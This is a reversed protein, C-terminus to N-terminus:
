AVEQGHRACRPDRIENGCSCFPRSRLAQTTLGKEDAMEQITAPRDRKPDSAWNWGCARCRFHQVNGLVGLLAESLRNNTDCKPCRM